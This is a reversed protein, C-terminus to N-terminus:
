YRPSQALEGILPRFHKLNRTILPIELRPSTAAILCDVTDINHSLGYNIMAETAWLFDIQEPEIITFEAIFKLARRQANRNSSGELVELIVM